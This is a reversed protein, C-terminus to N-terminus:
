CGGKKGYGPAYLGVVKGVINNGICWGELPGDSFGSPLRQWWRDGDGPCRVLQVVERSTTLPSFPQARREVHEDALELLLWRRWNMGCPTHQREVVYFGGDVLGERYLTDTAYVVVAGRLTVIGHHYEPITSFVRLDPLTFPEPKPPATVEGRRVLATSTM